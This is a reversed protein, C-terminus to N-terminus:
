RRVAEWACAEAQEIVKPSLALYGLWSAKMLGTMAGYVIAILLEPSLEKFVQADSGLQVFAALPMLLEAEIRRSEEDLYPLHHHLELFMFAKQQEQAFQALRTWLVHFQQRPPKELPFENMLHHSLQSKWKQYLANVLAEKSEFYRYITGTGVKAREAVEPVSTGHFGQDAFLELAAELIAERKEPEHSPMAM